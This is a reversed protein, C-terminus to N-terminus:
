VSLAARSRGERKGPKSGESEAIGLPHFTKKKQRQRKESPQDSDLDRGDKSPCLRRHCQSADGGHDDPSGAEVRGLADLHDNPKRRDISLGDYSSAAATKNRVEM